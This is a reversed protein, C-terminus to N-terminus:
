PASITTRHVFGLRGGMDIAAWDHTFGVVDLVDSRHAWAFPEGHMGPKARVNLTHPAVTAQYPRPEVRVKNTGSADVEVKAAPLPTAGPSAPPATATLRGLLELVETDVIGGLQATLVPALEPGSPPSVVLADLYAKM